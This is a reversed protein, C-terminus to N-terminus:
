QPVGSVSVGGLERPRQPPYPLSAIYLSSARAAVGLQMFGSGPGPAGVLCHPPRARHSRRSLVLSLMAPFIANLPCLAHGKTIKKSELATACVSGMRDCASNGCSTDLASNREDQGARHAMTTMAMNAQCTKPQPTQLDGVHRKCM